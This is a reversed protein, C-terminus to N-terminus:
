NQPEFINAPLILKEPFISGVIQRKKITTADQYIRDLKALSNVAKDRIPVFEEKEDAIQALKGELIM